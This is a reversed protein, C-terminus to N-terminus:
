YYRWGLEDARPTMHGIYFIPSLTTAFTRTTKDYKMCWLKQYTVPGINVTGGTSTVKFYLNGTTDNVRFLEVQSPNTLYTDYDTFYQGGIELQMIIGGNLWHEVWYGSHFEAKSLGVLHGSPFMRRSAKLPPTCYMGGRTNVLQPNAAVCSGVVARRLGHALEHILKSSVLQPCEDLEVQSYSLFIPIVGNADAVGTFPDAIRLRQPYLTFRIEICPEPQPWPEQPLSLDNWAAETQLVSYIQNAVSNIMETTIGAPIGVPPLLYASM